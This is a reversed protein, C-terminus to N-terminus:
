RSNQERMQLAQQMALGDRLSRDLQRILGATLRINVAVTTGALVALIVDSERAAVSFATAEIVNSM